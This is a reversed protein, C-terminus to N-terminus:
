FRTRSMQTVGLYDFKPRFVFVLARRLQESVAIEPGSRACCEFRMMRQKGADIKRHQM